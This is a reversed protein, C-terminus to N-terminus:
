PVDAVVLVIPRKDVTLTESSSNIEDPPLEPLRFGARWQNILTPRSWDGGTRVPVIEVAIFAPPDRSVIWLQGGSAEEVVWGKPLTWTFPLRSAPDNGDEIPKGDGAPRFHISTLLSRLNGIQRDPMNEDFYMARFLWVTQGDPVVAMVAKTGAPEAVPEPKKLAFWKEVAAPSAITLSAVFQDFEQAHKAMLAKPGSCAIVWSQGGLTVGVARTQSSEMSLEVPTEITVQWGPQGAVKVATTKVEELPLPILGSSLRWSNVIQEKRAAGQPFYNVHIMLREGGEFLNLSTVTTGFARADGFYYQDALRPTGVEYWGRPVAFELPCEALKRDKIMHALEPVVKNFAAPDDDRRATILKAFLEGAPNPELGTENAMRTAILAFPLSLWEGGPDKPPVVFPIARKELERSLRLSAIMSDSSSFDPLRFLGMVRSLFDLREYLDLAAREDDTHKARSREIAASRQELAELKPTLDKIAFHRATGDAPLGFLERLAPHDVLVIPVSQVSESDCILNLLWTIAPQAKGDNDVWTERGSIRLLVNRAYHDFDTVRGNFQIPLRGFAAVDFREARQPPPADASWASTQDLCTLLLVAPLTFLLKRM